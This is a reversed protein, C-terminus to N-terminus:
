FEDGDLYIGDFDDISSIPDSPPKTVVPPPSSTSIQTPAEDPQVPSETQVEITV